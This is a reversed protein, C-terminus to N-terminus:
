IDIFLMTSFRHIAKVYRHIVHYIERRTAQEVMLFMDVDTLLDLQLNTNKFAAQWALGPASYFRTADIEHIKLCM